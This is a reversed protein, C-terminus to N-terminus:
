RSSKLDFQRLAQTDIQFARRTADYRALCGQGCDKHEGWLGCHRVVVGSRTAKGPPAPDLEIYTITNQEPCRVVREDPALTMLQYLVTGVIVLALLPLVWDMTIFNM